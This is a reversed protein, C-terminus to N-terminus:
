LIIAASCCLTELSYQFYKQFVLIQFMYQLNEFHVSFNKFPSIIEWMHLCNRLHMSFKQWTFLDSICWSNRFCVLIKYFVDLIWPLPLSFHVLIGLIYWFTQFVSVIQLLISMSMKLHVSFLFGSNTGFGVLFKQLISLFKIVNSFKYVELHMSFKYFM